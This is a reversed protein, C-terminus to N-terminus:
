LLQALYNYTKWSAYGKGDVWFRMRQTMQHGTVLNISTKSYLQNKTKIKSIVTRSAILGGYLYMELSIIAGDSLNSRESVWNDLQTLKAPQKKKPLYELPVSDISYPTVKALNLFANRTTFREDLPLHLIQLSTSVWFLPNVTHFYWYRNM